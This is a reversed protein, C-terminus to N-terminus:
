ISLRAWPWLAISSNNWFFFETLADPISGAVIRNTACFRIWQAVATGSIFLVPHRILFFWLLKEGDASKEQNFIHKLINRISLQFAMRKIVQCRLGYYRWDMTICYEV